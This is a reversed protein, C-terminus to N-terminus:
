KSLIELPFSNSLSSQLSEFGGLFFPGRGLSWANLYSLLQLTLACHAHSEMADIHRNGSAGLATALVRGGAWQQQQSLGQHERINFPHPSSPPVPHSPQIADGVWHVHMQAFDPLSHDPFDPTNCEIPDCFTSRSKAVLCCGCAWLMWIDTELLGWTSDALVWM